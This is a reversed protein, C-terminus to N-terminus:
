FGKVVARTANRNGGKAFDREVDMVALYDPEDTPWARAFRCQQEAEGTKYARVRPADRPEALLDGPMVDRRAKSVHRLAGAVIGEEVDAFCELVVRGQM